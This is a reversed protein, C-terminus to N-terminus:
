SLPEFVQSLSGALPLRTALIESSKSQSAQHLNPRMGCVVGSPRFNYICSPPGHADSRVAVHQRPSCSRQLVSLVSFGRGALMLPCDAARKAELCVEQPRVILMGALMPADSSRGPGWCYVGCLPQLALQVYQMGKKRVSPQFDVELIGLCHDKLM